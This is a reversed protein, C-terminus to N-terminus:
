SEVEKKIHDGEAKSDPIKVESSKRIILEPKILYEEWHNGLEPFKRKALCTEIVSMCTKAVMDFNFNMSSFEYAEAWETNGGGILALDEPINIKIGLAIKRLEMARHDLSCYIATPRDPRKLMETFTSETNGGPPCSCICDYDICSDKMAKRYGDIVNNGTIGRIKGIGKESEISFCAIQRHGLDIFHRTAIYAAHYYNPYIATGPFTKHTIADLCIVRISPYSTALNRAVNNLNSKTIIAFPNCRSIMDALQPQATKPDSFIIIRADINLKQLETVFTLTMAKQVDNEECTLIGVTGNKAFHLNESVVTGKGKERKIIGKEVLDRLASHATPVSINFQQAIKKTDPFKYGSPLEGSKIREEYFNILSNRGNM